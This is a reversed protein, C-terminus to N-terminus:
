DNGISQSFNFREFVEGLESVIQERSLGVKKLSYEHKSQYKRAKKAEKKLIAAYRNDLEFDFHQYVQEIVKDANEVLDDFKIVIYRDKPYESLVRLPYTYWNKALKMVFDKGSYPEVSEGYYNWVYDVLSVMSPIAELPNRVLYIIKGDPFEDLLTKVKPTAAPNKSLYYCGEAQCDNESNQFYLKRKICMQYFEMIRDKDGKSIKQDFQIYDEAEDVFSTDFWVGLASWIHIFLHQDEEPAELKPQHINNKGTFLRTAKKIFINFPKGITSNLFNGILKFAKRQFISPAFLIEWLRLFAFKKDKALLRHLFTTGSRYFGIIFVPKKIKTRQYQSFFIEDLTFSLWLFLQNFLYLIHFIVLNFIRKINLKSHPHDTKTWALSIFKFFDRFNFYRIFM